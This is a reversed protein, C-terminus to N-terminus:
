CADTQVLQRGADPLAALPAQASPRGALLSELDSAEVSSLGRVIADVRLREMVTAVTVLFAVGFAGGLERVLALGAGSLGRKSEPFEAVTLAQVPVGTLAIGLGVLVLCPIMLLYQRELALVGTVLSATVMTVLGVTVVKRAGFRKVLPAVWTAALLPV